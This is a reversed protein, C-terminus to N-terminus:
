SAAVKITQNLIKPPILPDDLANICVLPVQVNNIYNISSSWRYFEEVTHFDHLRRCFNKSSFYNLPLIPAPLMFFTPHASPRISIGHYVLM